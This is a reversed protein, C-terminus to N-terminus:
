EHGAEEIKKDLEQLLKQTSSDIFFGRLLDNVRKRELKVQEMSGSGEKYSQLTLLIREIQGRYQYYRSLSPLAEMQDLVNAAEKLRNEKRMLRALYYWGYEYAPHLETLKRFEDIAAEYDNSNTLYIARYYAKVGAETDAEDIIALAKRYYDTERKKSAVGHEYLASRLAKFQRLAEMHRVEPEKFVDLKGTQISYQYYRTLAALGPAYAFYLKQRTLDLICSQVTSGNNIGIFYAPHHDERYFSVDSLMLYAKETLDTETLDQYLEQIKDERSTNSTSHEWIPTLAKRTEKALALNEIALFDNHMENKFIKGRTLEYVCGGQDPLSGVTFFWGHTVYNTLLSDVQRLSSAQEMLQRTKYASPMAQNFGEADMAMPLSAGNMNISVSLGQHNMATYVGPYGIFTAVTFANRGDPHYNVILPFRVLPDIGNWDLNRGHLLTNGEKLIFSTCSIEFFVQPFYAITKIDTVSLDSAEAMGELERIFHAPMRQDIKRIRNKLVVKGLWRKLFFDGTNAAILSDVLHNMQVLQTNLLHGYQKGMQYHSGKVTLVPIGKDIVLKGQQHTTIQQAVIQQQGMLGILLFFLLVTRTIKPTLLFM